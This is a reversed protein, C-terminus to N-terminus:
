WSNLTARKWQNTGTSVYVYSADYCILGAGAGFTSDTSNTITRSPSNLVGSLTMIPPTTLGVGFATRVFAMSSSPIPFTITYVGGTQTPYSSTVNPVTKWLPTSLNATFQPVPPATVGNTSVLLTVTGALSSISTNSAYSLPPTTMSLVNLGLYQLAVGNTNGQWAWSSNLNLGGGTLTIGGNQLYNVASISADVYAKSAAEQPMTPTQVLTHQTQLSNTRNLLDPRTLQYVILNTVYSDPAVGMMPIAQTLFSIWVPGLQQAPLPSFWNTGDTSYDAEVNGSARFSAGGFNTVTMPLITRNTSVGFGNTAWIQVLGDCVISNTGGGAQLALIEAEMWAENTNVIGFGQWTAIDPPDSFNTHYKATGLPIHILNTQASCLAAPLALLCLFLKKM